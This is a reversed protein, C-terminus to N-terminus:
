KHAQLLGYIRTRFDHMVGEWQQRANQAAPRELEITQARFIYAFQSATDYDTVWALDESLHKAGRMDQIVSDHETAYNAFWTELTRGEGIPQDKMTNWFVKGAEFALLNERRAGRLQESFFGDKFRLESGSATIPSFTDKTFRNLQANEALWARLREDKWGQLAQNVVVRDHDAWTGTWGGKPASTVVETLAKEFRDNFKDLLARWADIQKIEFDWQPQISTQWDKLKQEEALLQGRRKERADARSQLEDKRANLGNARSQLALRRMNLGSEEQGLRAREEDLQAKRQNLVGMRLNLSQQWSSCRAFASPPLPAGVCQASYNAVEADHTAVETNHSNLRVKFDALRASYGALNEEYIRLDAAHKTVEKNHEQTEAELAAENVRFAAVDDRYKFVRDEMEMQDRDLARTRGLLWDRSPVATAFMLTGFENVFDARVQAALSNVRPDSRLQEAKRVSPNNRIYNELKGMREQPSSPIDNPAAARAPAAPAPAPAALAGPQELPELKPGSTVVPRDAELGTQAVKAAPAKAVPTTGQQAYGSAASLAVVVLSVWVVIGNSIHKSESIRGPIKSVHIKMPGERWLTTEKRVNLPSRTRKSLGGLLLGDCYVCNLETFSDADHGVDRM